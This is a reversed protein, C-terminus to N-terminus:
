IVDGSAALDFRYHKVGSPSRSVEGVAFTVWSSTHAQWGSCRRPSHAAAAVAAWRAADIVEGVATVAPRRHAIGPAAPRVAGDGCADGGALVRINKSIMAGSKPAWTGAAASDFEHSSASAKLGSNLGYGTQADSNTAELTFAADAALTLIAGGTSSDREWSWIFTPTFTTDAWAVLADMVTAVDAAADSHNFSDTTVGDNIELDAVSWDVASPELAIM